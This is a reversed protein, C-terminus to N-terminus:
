RLGDGVPGDLVLRLLQALHLAQRGDALQAIQIRCSFGDALVRAHPEARLAPLLVREASAVSVAHHGREFGFNGALGCCGADLVTLGVGCARLLAADADFGMIAHQHCHVQALATRPAGVATDRPRWGAAHLVEALTRTQGALRKADKSGLLEPADSRFVAACSPELVVVEQGAALSPRLAALSRRLVRRAM